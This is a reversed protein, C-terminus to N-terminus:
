LHAQRSDLARNVLMDALRIHPNERRVHTYTVKRFGREADKIELLAKKLGPNKTKYQGKMQRVLLQSDSHCRVEGKTFRSAIRLGRLLAAYEAQNNTGKGIFEGVQALPNGSGSYVLVGIASPGPNGRSGGDTYVAVSDLLEPMTHKEFWDIYIIGTNM